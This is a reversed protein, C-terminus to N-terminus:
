HSEKEPAFTEPFSLELSRLEQSRLNKSSESVPALTGPLSLEMTHLSRFNWLEDVANACVGLSPVEGRGFM